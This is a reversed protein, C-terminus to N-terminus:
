GLPATVVFRAGGDMEARISGGLQDLLARVVQLGIGSGETPDFGDPLGTGHDAVSMRLRGDAIAHAIEVSGGGGAYGHRCANLVLENAVLALQLGMRAPVLLPEGRCFCRAGLAVGLDEALGSLIQALDVVDLSSDAASLANFRRHVQAIAGIRAAAETLAERAAPDTM